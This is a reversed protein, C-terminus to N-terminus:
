YNRKTLYEALEILNTKDNEFVNLCEIAENTLDEVKQKAKELGFASVYTFKLNASDSGVPKGLLKEDATLDLIDDVIQFALGVKEAYETAASIKFNEAGALIVGIEAAAKILCGTKLYYTKLLKEASVSKGEFSLDMQQGGIMGNVGSYFALKNIATLVNKSNILSNQSALEFAYTLLADGALLATTEGFAKHCSPKGRRLDDNDMCPLDDHILSYTHIMELASAFNLATKFDGGCIKNFELLILPRIRKGGVLLSYEMADLVSKYDIDKTKFFSKLNNNILNENEFILNTVSM